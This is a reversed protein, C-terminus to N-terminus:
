VPSNEETKKMVAASTNNQTQPIETQKREHYARLFFNQLERCCKPKTLIKKLPFHQPFHTEAMKVASRIEPDDGDYSMWSRGTIKEASMVALVGKSANEWNCIHVQTPGPDPFKSLLFNYLEPNRKAEAFFKRWEPRQFVQAGICGPKQALVEFGNSYASIEKALLVTLPLVSLLAFITKM